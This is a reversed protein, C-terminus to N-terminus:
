TEISLIHHNKIKIMINWTNNILKQMDNFLMVYEVKSVKKQILLM